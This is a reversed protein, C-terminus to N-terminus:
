IIFFFGHNFPKRKTNSIGKKEKSTKGGVVQTPLFDFTHGRFRNHGGQFNKRGVPRALVMSIRDANM